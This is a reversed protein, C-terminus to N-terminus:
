NEKKGKIRIIKQTLFSQTDNLYIFITTSTYYRIKFYVQNTMFISQIQINYM